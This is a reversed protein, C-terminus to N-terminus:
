RVQWDKEAVAAYVKEMVANVEADTLTKEFSQFVLRFALSLKEGKEFRDFLESRVLLEGAEARIIELVDEPKTGAPTWLAIDRVIFPYRSFSQYRETESLPLNEYTSAGGVVTLPGERVGSEDAIGLVTAEGGGKWVVGIEFLKVERLGLLNQNHWNLALADALGNVLTARLYPHTSDVKNAVAREGTDVFVSTFVESYGKSVLDERVREASYFNM